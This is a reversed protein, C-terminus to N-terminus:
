EKNIEVFNDDKDEINSIVTLVPSINKDDFNDCLQTWKM